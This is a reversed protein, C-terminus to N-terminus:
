WDWNHKYKASQKVISIAENIQNVISQKVTKKSFMLSVEGAYIEIKCTKIQGRLQRRKLDYALVTPDEFYGDIQNNLLASIADRNEKLYILNAEYNPNQQIAGMEDGYLNGQTLGFKFQNTLLENLSKDKCREVDDKKVYLLLIEQRYTDSFRAFLKREATVTTDAMMDIKGSEIDAINQSFPQQIFKLGCNAQKAITRLLDIQLGKAESSESLYQYPAWIGWGVTLTCNEPSVSSEKTSLQNGAPLKQSAYAIQPLLIIVTFFLVLLVKIASNPANFKNEPM